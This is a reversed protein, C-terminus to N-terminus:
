LGIIAKLKGVYDNIKTLDDQTIKGKAQADKAKQTKENLDGIAKSVEKDTKGNVIKLIDNGSERAINKAELNSLEPMKIKSISDNVVSGLAKVRAMVANEVSSAAQDIAAAEHNVAAVSDKEAMKKAKDQPSHCSFTFLAAGAVLFYNIKKM